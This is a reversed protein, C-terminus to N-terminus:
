EYRLVIMPDVKSARQAPLYGALVGVLALAAIAIAFTIADNPELGFLLSSVTRAVALALVTGATLGIVLLIGAEGMVMKIINVRDAGLAMRIGIESRRQVVMYSMVGYLGLTALLAALIGFFASLTAMLRERLISEKLLINLVRFNLTIDPNIEAMVGKVSSILGILPSNSRIVIAPQMDLEKSQSEPFYIIPTFDERLDRYKTDKVLGVIEYVHNPDQPGTELKFTKGIPNAGKLLERVFKENVIAIKPSTLTDRENFDRGVLIPTGMTKFYDKSVQNINSLKKPEDEVLVFENWSSGSLPIIYTEAASDVGPISRLRELIEEKTARGREESLNLRTLDLLTVLVGDQQFGADLSSLNNLTRVFLLAGVLLVLSLAVQSVVLARRISFRERNATLGRVNAKITAGPAISTVRIAPVLGFLLCTLIALGITFALVRWDLDLNIFLQQRQTSIFSVLFRSLNLGIFAGFLTGIAALLLSESLLQRIIRGRSAGLALRIAIERERASARALMLNALNACAILLVLGTIAMLVWLPNDYSRRLSSVGNGAPFAGLKFDQYKKSEEANYNTPVTDQFIPPSIEKLLATTQEVSIGPKLRGMGVLWWAHLKNLRKLQPSLLPESWIPVAVDFSSGVEVGYFYAPTVGIVEFPLGNLTIKQGIISSDGGFRHQWFRYSIVAGFDSGQRDEASTFLRGLIPQVGLVNFFDGSVYLGQAYQAEGGQALNFREASWAFIGSFIQQNNRIREWQAYTLSPFGGSFSGKRGEGIIKVEVLEQPSKVPLSRLGIADLLQFIATNAGIGLALSLVAVVTFVPNKGMIRLGYRLDQALQELWRWGWMDRTVEKIMTVNGMEQLASREAEEATEGRQMRDRIAMQLHSRLEEELEEERKDRGFFPFKM